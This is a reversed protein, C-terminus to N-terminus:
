VGTLWLTTEFGVAHWMAQCVHHPWLSTPQHASISCRLSMQADEERGGWVVGSTEREGKQAEDKRLGKQKAIRKRVGEDIVMCM